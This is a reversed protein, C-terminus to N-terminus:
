IDFHSSPFLGGQFQLLHLLNQRLEDVLPHFFILHNYRGTVRAKATMNGTVATLRWCGTVDLMWHNGSSQPHKQAWNVPPKNDLVTSVNTNCQKHDCVQLYSSLVAIIHQPGHCGYKILRMQNHSASGTISIHMETAHLSFCFCGLLKTLKSLKKETM